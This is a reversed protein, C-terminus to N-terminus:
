QYDIVALIVQCLLFSVNSFYQRFIYRQSVRPPEGKQMRIVQFVSSTRYDKTVVLKMIYTQNLLLPKKSFIVVPGFGKEAFYQVAINSLSPLPFSDNNGKVKGFHWTFNMGSNNGTGIDPDYSLSANMTINEDLGRIVEAGGEIIAVLEPKKRCAEALCYYTQRKKNQFRQGKRAFGEWVYTPKQYPLVRQATIM